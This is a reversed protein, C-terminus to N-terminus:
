ENCKQKKIWRMMPTTSGRNVWHFQIFGIMIMAAYLGPYWVKIIEESYPLNRLPLIIWRFAAFWIAFLASVAGEKWKFIKTLVYAVTGAVFAGIMEYLQTPHVCPSKIKLLPLAEVFEYVSANAPFVMGLPGDTPIGFCCGNLFCGLKLLIIGVTTPMVLADSLAFVKRKTLTCYLLIVVVGFILGGMLSLKRYSFTWVTFGAKYADPNIMYNFIRAGILAVVITILPLLISHVLPILKRLMVYSLLFGVVAALAACVYYSQFTRGLINIIPYM